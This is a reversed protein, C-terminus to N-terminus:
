VSFVTASGKKKQQKFFEIVSLKKAMLTLSQEDAKGNLQKKADAKIEELSDEICELMGANNLEKFHMEDISIVTISAEDECYHAFLYNLDQKVRINFVPPPKKPASNQSNVEIPKKDYNGEIIKLYNSENEIIWDFGFWKGTLLFESKGAQKLIELFDFGKEFFRVKFKKKRTDNIKSVQSLKREEAFLNWLAVYPEIFDPKYQRVFDVLPKKEKKLEKFVAHIDIPLDAAPPNGAGNPPTYGNGKEMEKGDGYGTAFVRRISESYEDFSEPRKPLKFAIAFNEPSIFGNKSPKDIKQHTKFTRIYLYGEKEMNFPVLMRAKVLQDVWQSVQDIRLNDDYPFLQAKLWKLNSKLIGYDDALNWTGVFLLRAQLPLKALTEDFWFEPKITRIRAM